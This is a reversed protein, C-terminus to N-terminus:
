SIKRKTGKEIISVAERADEEIKQIRKKTMEKMFYRGGPTGYLAEYKKLINARILQSFEKEFPSYYYTKKKGNASFLTSYITVPSLMRITVDDQIPPEPFVKVRVRM